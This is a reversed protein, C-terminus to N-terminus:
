LLIDTEAALARALGVRQQMGGSLQQPYKDGWGDLGVTKLWEEAKELREAKSVGQVELSYAANERVTRHPLLAVHQFVMSVHKGRVQRLASSDPQSVDSGLVAVVGAAPAGLGTVTP